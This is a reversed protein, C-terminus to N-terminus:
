NIVLLSDGYVQLKELSKDLALTLLIKPAMFSGLTTPEGELIPKSSCLTVKLFTYFVGWAACLIQVRAPEM